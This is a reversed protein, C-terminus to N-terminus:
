LRNMGESNNGGRFNGGRGMTAFSELSNLKNGGKGRGGTTGYFDRQEQRVIVVEPNIFYSENQPIIYDGHFNECIDPNKTYVECQGLRDMGYNEDHTVHTLPPAASARQKRFYAAM